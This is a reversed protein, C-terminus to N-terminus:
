DGVPETFGVARLILRNGDVAPLLGLNAHSDYPSSAVMEFTSGNYPIAENENVSSSLM